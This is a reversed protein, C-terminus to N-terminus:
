FEIRYQLSFLNDRPDGHGATRNFMYEARVDLNRLIRYGLAAQVRWIDFDWAQTAGNSLHIENFRMTGYRLAGYFGPLFKQKIEVYGSVDVPDDLVKPVEWYDHFAEGRVQTKGREYLFEVEWTKQRYENVGERGMSARPRDGLYPGTSYAVGLYFETLMRYGVHAVFSPHNKQGIQYNWMGPESSTASGMAALRFDLKRRGGFIMVGMQYPNGWIMPAGIPRFIDPALKWNIFGDNSRPLVESSVMTRYDYMLPPRIFPDAATDHRQNYAGFPSIFKGFQIHLDQNLWPKYRMFAQQVRGTLVGRRPSEGTDLRFEGTMYVHKGLYFDTFLSGRGSLFKGRELILGSGERGPALGELILRGGLASQFYGSKSSFKFHKLSFTQASLVPSLVLTAIAVMVSVAIKRIPWTGTM